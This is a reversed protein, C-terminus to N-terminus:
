KSGEIAIQTVDDWWDKPSDDELNFAKMLSMVTDGADVWKDGILVSYGYGALEDLFRLALALAEIKAENKSM